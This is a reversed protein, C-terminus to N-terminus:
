PVRCQPSSVTSGNGLFPTGNGCPTNENTDPARAIQQESQAEPFSLPMCAARAAMM